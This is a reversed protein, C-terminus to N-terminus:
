ERAQVQLAKSFDISIKVKKKVSSYLMMLTNDLSEPLTMDDFLKADAMPSDESKLEYVVCYYRNLIDEFFDLMKNGVRKVSYERWYSMYKRLIILGIAFSDLTEYYDHASRSPKICKNFVRTKEFGTSNFYEM